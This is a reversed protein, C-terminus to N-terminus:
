IPLEQDVPESVAVPAPTAVPAVAAALRTSTTTAVAPVVAPPLAASVSDPYKIEGEVDIAEDYEIAKQIEVSLPAHKKLNLKTVTKLAMPEFDTSWKSSKKNERLDYGYSQSYRKAHAEMEEVTMFFQKSFGNRLRFFSLFGVTKDSTKQEQFEYEGTFSNSSKLQGEKVAVANILAAQGSRLFLQVYGLYGLQFTALGKYPVIYAHGLSPNLSLHLSAAILAAGLVSMPDCAALTKNNNCISLVNSLYIPAQDKLVEEFRKKIGETKILDSLRTAVQMENESM